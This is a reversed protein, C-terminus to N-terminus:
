SKLKEANYIKQEQELELQKKKIELRHLEKQAKMDKIKQIWWLIALFSLVVTLIENVNVGLEGIFDIVKLKILGFTENINFGFASLNIFLGYLNSSLRKM